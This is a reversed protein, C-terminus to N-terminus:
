SKTATPPTEPKKERQAAREIHSASLWARLKEPNRTYKNHMIADLFTVEKMLEAILQAILGTNEVGGERSQELTEKAGTIAARDDFLHQVFDAPLDHAIFKQALAEKAAAEAPKDEDTVYFARLHIDAADLVARENSNKPYPFRDAFGPEELDIAAGTRAVNQLDIRLADLLTTKSAVSLGKQGARAKDVKGLIRSVNGFRKIAESTPDFDAASDKGFAIVRSGMDCRANDRDNM